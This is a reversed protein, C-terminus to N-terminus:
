VVERVPIRAVRANSCAVRCSNGDVTYREAGTVRAIGDKRRFQKGLLEHGSKKTM